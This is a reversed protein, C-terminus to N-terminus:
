KTGSQRASAISWSTTAAQRHSCLCPSGGCLGDGALNWMSMRHSIEDRLGGFCAKRENEGQELGDPLRDDM